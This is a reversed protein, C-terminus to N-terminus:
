GLRTRLLTVALGVDAGTLGIADVLSRMTPEPEGALADVGVWTTRPTAGGLDPVPGLHVYHADPYVAAVYQPARIHDPTYDVVLEGASPLLVADALERLAGLVVQPGALVAIGTSGSPGPGAEDPEAGLAYNTLVEGLVDAFLGSPAAHGGIGPVALLAEVLVEAGTDPSAILFVVRGHLPSTRAAADALVPLEALAM